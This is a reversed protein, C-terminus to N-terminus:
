NFNSIKQKNIYYIKGPKTKTSDVKSNQINYAYEVDCHAIKQVALQIIILCIIRLMEILNFQKM